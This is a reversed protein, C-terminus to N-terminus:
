DLELSLDVAPASHTLAGISILDVGTQAIELINELNIGGSAEVLMRGNIMKVAEVMAPVPMNDLLVAEIGLRLCEGVQELTEVEVEIRWLHPINRRIMEVAKTIGGALHIHNDKILCGDNLGFRHNLGGGCLVAYKELARLGPTTKRTDVIRAKTGAVKDVYQSTLTAIGSLRQIFNLATREAALIVWAEAEIRAIPQGTKVKKGDSNETMWNVPSDSLRDFTKAAIDLGALVLDQKSFITAYVKKQCSTIGFSTRDSWAGDESLAYDILENM